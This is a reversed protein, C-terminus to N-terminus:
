SKTEDKAEEAADEKAAKTAKANAKEFWEEPADDLDATQGAEVMVLVGGLYGGRPGTSTNTYSGKAM